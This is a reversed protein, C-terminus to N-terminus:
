YPPQSWSWPLHQEDFTYVAWHPLVIRESGDAEIVIEDDSRWYVVSPLSVVTVKYDEIFNTLVEDDNCNVPIIDVPMYRLLDSVNYVGTKFLFYRSETTM